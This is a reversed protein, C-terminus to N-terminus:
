VMVKYVKGDVKAFFWEGKGSQATSFGLGSLQNEADADDVRMRNMLLQFVRSHQTKLDQRLFEQTLGLLNTDENKCGLLFFFVHEPGFTGGCWRNPSKTILKVPVWNNTQIGWIERSTARFGLGANNLSKVIKIGKSRSYTFELCDVIQDDQVPRDHVLQLTQDGIKVDIVFGTNGMRWAYNKVYLKYTGELLRSEEPLYINEVPKDSDRLGGANMDVDLVAGTERHPMGKTGHYVHYGGPLLMHLDLDDDSPKPNNALNGWGLSFVAYGDTKGGAESVRQRIVSDTFGGAYQWTIPNDWNVINPAEPHKPGILSMLRHTLNSTFLIEVDSGLHNSLFDALGVEKGSVKNPDVVSSGVEKKLEEFVGISDFAGSKRIASNIWFWEGLDSLRLDEAVVHKRYLSQEIGLEKVTKEAQAVQAPTVLTIDKQQYNQPNTRSCFERFAKNELAPDGSAATLDKLLQGTVTSPFRALGPKNAVFDWLWIEPNLAQQYSELAEIYATTAAAFNALESFGGSKHFELVDKAVQLNIESGGKVFCEYATRYHNRVGGATRLSADSQRAKKRAANLVQESLRGYFHNYTVVGTKDETLVTNSLTGLEPNQGFQDDLVFVNTIEASHVLDSLRQGMNQYAEDYAGEILFDWISTKQGNEIAILDGYRGVFSKCCQCNMWQRFGSGGEGTYNDGATGPFSELFTTVLADKPLNTKYLFQKGSVFEAFNSVFRQQYTKFSPYVQTQTQMKGTRDRM